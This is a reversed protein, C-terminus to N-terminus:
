QPSSVIAIGADIETFQALALTNNGDWYKNANLKAQFKNKQMRNTSQYKGM